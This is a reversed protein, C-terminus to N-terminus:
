EIFQFAGIAPNVTRNNGLIDEPVLQAAELQAKGISFSNSTISYINQKTNTFSTNENLYVANYNETNEFDYLSNGSNLALNVKLMCYSFNFSLNTSSAPLTLVLENTNSGDVICNTFNARIVNTNSNIQVAFGSRFGSYWYNAITCHTFNYTGGDTIFLSNSGANGLVLNEAIISANKAWINSNSSNYIQSNTIKLNVNEESNNGNVFIGITANKLTLHNINNDISENAMWIGGWQGATVSFEPELRDAEFIVENELVDNDESVSGNIKLSSLDPVYIGSNKHFYVRAGADIQLSKNEPVTAYGYIVYPKENTFQLQNDALVFGNVTIKEENNELIVTERVGNMDKGPYLFIADKVLTVLPIKQQQMGQDFLIADTYLFENQATSTIDVTTEIFIYLSDKAYLPVNYFEKGAQGDVNLRYNSEIGNELTISPIKLDKNSQNYVKLTYTSSRINTFVSDLYVTDKSFSLNGTSDEYNFDKRCSSWLVIVVLLLLHYIYRLHTTKLM